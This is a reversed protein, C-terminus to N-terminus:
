EIRMPMIVHLYDKDKKDKFVGPATMGNSEYIIEDGTMSNVMDHLYKANYATEMSEGELKAIVAKTENQGLDIVYASLTLTKNDADVYFRTKNGVVNRAFINVVKISNTFEEKLISFGYSKDKPLIDEYSPFEGEILRSAFEIDGIKLIIQNNNPMSYIEINDEKQAVDKIIRNFEMLSKGPIIELFNEEPGNDIKIEKKSLRYGDVGVLVIKRKSIKTLVGTLVPRSSDTAVAFITKDLARSFNQANIVVLPDGECHPITPFDEAPVIFFEASNDVSKVLLKEGDLIIQLKGPKISSVFESLLRASVTVKGPVAIDAGVNANIGIELNTGSLKLKGTETELLVNALVPINPNPNIAKNIHNLAKAFKEQIVELKM